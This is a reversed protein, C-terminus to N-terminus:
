ARTNSRGPLAASSWKQIPLQTIPTLTTTTIAM